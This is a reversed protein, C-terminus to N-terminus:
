DETVKITLLREYGIVVRSWDVPNVLPRGAWRILNSEIADRVPKGIFQLPDIGVMHSECMVFEVEAKPPTKDIGEIAPLEIFPRWEACKHCGPVQCGIKRGIKAELSELSERM